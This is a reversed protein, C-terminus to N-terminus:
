NVGPAPFLTSSLAWGVAVGAIGLVFMLAVYSAAIGWRGQQALRFTDYGFASFTTFSGLVGTVLLLRAREDLIERAVFLHMLVGIAVCGVTNVVTTGIPFHGSISRHIWPDLTRHALAGLGFRAVAGIAGGLAVLGSQVLLSSM